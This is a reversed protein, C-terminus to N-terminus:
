PLPNCGGNTCSTGAPCVKGCFGCNAPDFKVDTCALAGTATKCPMFGQQCTPPTAAGADSPGAPLVCRGMNCTQDAPCTIECKGCHIRDWMLDVCTVVGAADKCTVLAAPCTPGTGADSPPTGNVSQCIGEGCFTGGPCIKGCVGCNMPDYKLKACYSGGGNLPCSVTEPPCTVAGGDGPPQTGGTGCRGQNCGMPPPCFIGCGGCNAPDRLPDTCFMNGAADGCLKQTAACMPVGVPGGADTRTGATGGDVLPLPPPCQFPGPLMVGGDPLQDKPLCSAKFCVNGVPCARGCGGCNEISTLLDVCIMGTALPCWVPKLDGPMTGTSGTPPPPVGGDWSGDLCKGSVCKGTAGCVIGCAGCNRPDNILDFPDDVKGNCDNDLGDCIEPSPLRAARDEVLM